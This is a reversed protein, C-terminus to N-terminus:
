QVHVDQRSAKAEDMYQERALLFGEVEMLELELRVSWLQTVIFKQLRRGSKSGKQGRSNDDISTDHRTM